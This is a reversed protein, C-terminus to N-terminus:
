YWIKVKVFTAAISPIIWFHFPKTASSYNRATLSNNAQSPLLFALQRTEKIELDLCILRLLAHYELRKLKLLNLVVYFQTRYCNVYQLFSGHCVCWLLDALYAKNIGNRPKNWFCISKLSHKCVDLCVCYSFNVHTIKLQTPKKFSADQPGRMAAWEVSYNFVLMEHIIMFPLHREHWNMSLVSTLHSLSKTQSSVHFTRM